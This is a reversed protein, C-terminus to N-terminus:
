LPRYSSPINVVRDELWQANDLPGCFSNEYMPLKNMLHWIPRTIVKQNNTLKLFEDREDRNNLIIANLWNNAKADKIETVFPIGIKSFYEAYVANLQRKNEVIKDLRELQACALAANINPMTYNYGVEDHFFEYAHPQKAISSLHKARKAIQEDDTIVAGGGGATVTKNGNFSFTGLLGFTGTHKGKYYSGISEAADEILAINYERCIAAVEDIRLPFGFTHMPICAAIRNGTTKNVTIGDRKEAHQELFDNLARPSMGLTDRDVDTFVPKAGCHAIANVTSVFTVPQTIVEDGSEVGAVVLALHLATTGNATAIAYKAGTIKKIMEEFQTVYAGVSSVFTSDITDMVYKRENGSFDPAHLPVFENENKFVGRIFSIIDNYM